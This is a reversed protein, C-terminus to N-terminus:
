GPEPAEGTRARRRWQEDREETYPCRCCGWTEVSHSEGTLHLCHGAPPPPKETCRRYLM